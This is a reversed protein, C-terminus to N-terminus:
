SHKQFLIITPIGKNTGILQKKFHFIPALCRKKLMDLIREKFDRM